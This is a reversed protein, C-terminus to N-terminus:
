RARCAEELVRLPSIGLWKGFDRITIRSGNADNVVTTTKGTEQDVETTPLNAFMDALLQDEDDDDQALLEAAIREAEKTIEDSPDTDQETSEPDVSVAAATAAAAAEEEEEKKLKAKQTALDKELEIRRRRWEVEAADRDFLVDKDIRELRAKLQEIQALTEESPSEPKGRSGNPRLYSEVEFLKAKTELFDPILDDPEIDSNCVIAKRKTQSKKERKKKAIQSPEADSALPSNQADGM